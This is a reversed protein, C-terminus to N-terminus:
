NKWLIILYKSSNLAYWENLLTLSFDIDEGFSYLESDTGQFGRKSSKPLHRNKTAYYPPLSLVCNVPFYKELYNLVGGESKILTILQAANNLQIQHLASTFSLENIETAIVKVGKKAFLLSMIATAGTGIEIIKSPHILSIIVSVIARRLGATPILNKETNDHISLEIDIDDLIKFLCKNYHYLAQPNGLDIKNSENLWQKIEPCKDKIQDIPLSYNKADLIM